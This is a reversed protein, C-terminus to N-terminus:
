WFLHGWFAHRGQTSSLSNGFQWIRRELPVLPNPSRATCSQYVPTVLDLLRKWWRFQIFLNASPTTWNWDWVEGQISIREVDEAVLAIDGGLTVDDMFGIKLPSDLSLLIPHLVLCFLLPGLPDGQQVGEASWIVEDGFQLTTSAGYALHCFHYLEPLESAVLELMIDRHICNFANKFDLKVVVQDRSMDSVFRRAAHIAAECGGPVGVGLQVHGFHSGLKELAYSNACKSALRRWYYGVAIPRLGGDKKNLALLKGGFLLTRVQPPCHGSFLLNIFDTLDSVLTSSSERCNVLDLMHQPRFGDPGGSSGAPFSGIADRVKDDTVILPAFSQPDPFPRRDAPATPHRSQLRSTTDASFPALQEDSSLIRIAARLNGDEIKSAVAAALSANPDRRPTPGGRSTSCIRLDLWRM